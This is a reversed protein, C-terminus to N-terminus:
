GPFTPYSHFTDNRVGSNGSMALGVPIRANREPGFYSLINFPFVKHGQGMVRGRLCTDTQVETNVLKLVM